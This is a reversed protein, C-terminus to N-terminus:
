SITFDYRPTSCLQSLLVNMANTGVIIAENHDEIPSVINDSGSTIVFTVGSNVGGYKPDPNIQLSSAMDYSIEGMQNGNANEDGFVGYNMKKDIGDNYIIAAVQGCNINNKTYDWYASGAIPLVYYPLTSATLYKGDSQKCTTKNRYQPDTNINCENTPQGDCDIAGSTNPCVFVIPSTNPIKYIYIPGTKDQSTVMELSVINKPVLYPKIANLIESPIVM